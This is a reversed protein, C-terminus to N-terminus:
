NASVDYSDQKSPSIADTTTTSTLENANNSLAKRALLYVAENRPPEAEGEIHVM